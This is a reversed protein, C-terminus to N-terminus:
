LNLRKALEMIAKEYQCPTLRKDLLKKKEAEYQQDKTTQVPQEAAVTLKDVVRSLFLSYPFITIASAIWKYIKNM